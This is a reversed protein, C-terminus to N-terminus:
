GVSGGRTTETRVQEDVEGQYIEYDITEAFALGRCMGIDAVNGLVFSHEAFSSPECMEWGNRIDARKNALLKRVARTVPNELWAKFEEESIM